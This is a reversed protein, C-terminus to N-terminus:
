LKEFEVKTYYNEIPSLRIIIEAATDSDPCPVSPLPNIGPPRGSLISVQEPDRAYIVRCGFVASHGSPAETGERASVRYAILRNRNDATLFDYISKTAKQKFITCLTKSHNPVDSIIGERDVRYSHINVNTIKVHDQQKAKELNYKQESSFQIIPLPRRSLYKSQFWVRGKIPIKNQTMKKLYNNLYSICRSATLLPRYGVLNDKSKPDFQPHDPDNLPHDALWLQFCRQKKLITFWSKHLWYYDIFTNVDLHCHEMGNETYENKGLYMRFSPYKQGIRKILESILQNFTKGKISGYGYPVTILWAIMTASRRQKTRFDFAMFPESFVLMKEFARKIGLIASDTLLGSYKRGKLNLLSNDRVKNKFLDKNREYRSCLIIRNHGLRPEVWRIQAIRVGPMDYIQVRSFYDQFIRNTKKRKKVLIWLKAAQPLM